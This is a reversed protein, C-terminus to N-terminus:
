QREVASGIMPIIGIVKDNNDQNAGAIHAFDQQIRPAM